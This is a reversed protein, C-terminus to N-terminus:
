YDFGDGDDGWHFNGLFAGNLKVRESNRYRHVRQGCHMEVESEDGDDSEDDVYHNGDIVVGTEDCVVEVGKRWVTGDETIPSEEGTTVFGMEKLDDSLRGM